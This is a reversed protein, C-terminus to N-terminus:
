HQLIKELAQVVGLVIAGSSTDVMLGYQRCLRKEMDVGDDVLLDTLKTTLV